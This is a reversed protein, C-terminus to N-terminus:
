HRPETHRAEGKTEGYEAEAAGVGTRTGSEAQGGVETVAETHGAADGVAALWRIRSPEPDTQQDGFSRGRETTVIKDILGGLTGTHSECEEM